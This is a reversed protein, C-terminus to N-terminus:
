KKKTAKSDILWLPTKGAETVKGAVWETGPDALENLKELRAEADADLVIKRRLINM